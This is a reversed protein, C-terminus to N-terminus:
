LLCTVIKIMIVITAANCDDCVIVAIIVTVVCHEYSHFDYCCHDHCHYDYDYYDYIYLGERPQYGEWPERPAAPARAAPPARYPVLHEPRMGVRAVWHPFDEHDVPPRQVWLLAEKVMSQCKASPHRIENRDALLRALIRRAERTGDDGFNFLFALAARADQDVGMATLLTTYANVDVCGRHSLWSAYGALATLREEYYPVSPDRLERLRELPSPPFRSRPARDQAPRLVFALSPEPDTAEIPNRWEDLMSPDPAVLKDTRLPMHPRHARPADPLAATGPLPGPLALTGQQPQQRLRNDFSSPLIPVVRADAALPEPPALVVTAAHPAQTNADYQRAGGPHGFVSCRPASQQPQLIPSGSVSSM